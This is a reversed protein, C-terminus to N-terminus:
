AALCLRDGVRGRSFVVVMGVAVFYRVVEVATFVERFSLRRSALGAQM